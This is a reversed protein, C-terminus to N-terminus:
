NTSPKVTKGEELTLQQSSGAAPRRPSRPHNGQQGATCSQLDADLRAECGLRGAPRRWIEPPKPVPSVGRGMGFLATLGQLASPVQGERAQSLLDGGTKSKRRAARSPPERRKIAPTPPGAAHQAGTRHARTSACRPRTREAVGRARAARLRGTHTSHKGRRDGTRGHVRAGAPRDDGRRSIPSRHPASRPDRGCPEQGAPERPAVPGGITRIRMRPPARSRGHPRPRLTPRELRRSSWPRRSPGACWSASRAPATQPRWPSCANPLSRAPDSPVATRRPRGDRRV